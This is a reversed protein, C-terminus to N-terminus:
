PARQWTIGAADALAQMKLQYPSATVGWFNIQAM